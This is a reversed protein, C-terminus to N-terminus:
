DVRERDYNFVEIGPMVCDDLEIRSFLMGAFVGLCVCAFKM